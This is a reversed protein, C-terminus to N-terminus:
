RNILGATMGYASLAMGGFLGYFYQDGPTGMFYATFIVGICLLATRIVILTM